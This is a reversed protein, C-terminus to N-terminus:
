CDWGLWQFPVAPFMVKSLPYARLSGVMLVPNVCVAATQSLEPIPRMLAHALDDVVQVATRITLLYCCVCRPLWQPLSMLCLLGQLTYQRIAM